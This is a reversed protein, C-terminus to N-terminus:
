ITNGLNVGDAHSGDRHNKKAFDSITSFAGTSGSGYAMAAEGDGYIGVDTYVRCLVPSWTKNDEPKLDMLM